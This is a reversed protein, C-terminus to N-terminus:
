LGFWSRLRSWTRSVIGPSYSTTQEPRADTPGWQNAGPNIIPAVPFSYSPITIDGGTPPTYVPETIPIDRVQRVIVGTDTMYESSTLSRVDLSNHNAYSVPNGLPVGQDRAAQVYVRSRAYLSDYDNALAELQDRPVLVERGLENTAFAEDQGYPQVFGFDDILYSFPATKADLLKQQVDNAITRAAIDDRYEQSSDVWDLQQSLSSAVSDTKSSVRCRQTGTIRDCFTLVGRRTPECKSNLPVPKTCVTMSGDKNITVQNDTRIDKASEKIPASDAEGGVTKCVPQPIPPPRQDIKCDEIHPKITLDEAAFVAALPTSFLVITGIAM